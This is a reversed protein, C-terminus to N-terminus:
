KTPAKQSNSIALAQYLNPQSLTSSTLFDWSLIGWGNLGWDAGWSNLVWLGRPDAAFAAVTHWGQSAAAPPPPGVILAEKTVNQFADFTNFVVVIPMGAELPASLAQKIDGRLQIKSYGSFTYSKATEFHAPTPQTACDYDTEMPQYASAPPIGDKMLRALHVEPFFGRTCVGKAELAYLFMPAFATEQRENKNALWGAVSHGLAWAACGYMQGQNGAAPAWASVDGYAPQLLPVGGPALLESQASTDAGYTEDLVKALEAANVRPLFRPHAPSTNPAVGTSIEAGGLGKPLRIPFAEKETSTDNSPASVSCGTGFAFAVGFAALGTRLRTGATQLSVFIRQAPPESM